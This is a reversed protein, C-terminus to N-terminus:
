GQRSLKWVHLVNVLPHHKPIRPAPMPWQPRCAPQFIFITALLGRRHTPPSELITAVELGVGPLTYCCMHTHVKHMWLLCCGAGAMIAGGRCILNTQVRAQVDQATQMQPLHRGECCFHQWPPLPAISRHAEVGKSGAEEVHVHARVRVDSHRLSTCVARTLGARM